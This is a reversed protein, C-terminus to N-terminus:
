LPGFTSACQRLLLKLWGNRTAYPSGGVQIMMPGTGVVGVEALQPDGIPHSLGGNWPVVNGAGEGSVKAVGVAKGARRAAEMVATATQSLTQLGTLM